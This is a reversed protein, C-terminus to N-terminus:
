KWGKADTPENLLKETTEDLKLLSISMGPMELSTMYNGVKNWVINVGLEKLYDFADKNAIYLEMVPTGGLGNILLATKGSTYDINDKMILDIMEKVLKKSHLLKEKKIGPEGHIGLGMEMEDQKLNFSPKGSAPVICHGLSMGITRTNAIVKEALTKVTKLDKGLESAAGAIKHVFITGAIGRRGTTYTSDEVAVDDNVIVMEVQQGDTEALTKAVEFNMVDGSYNKVILLIGKSSKTLNIAGQVMDPTPSTFVEGCVAADLMGKGIFGAHAPEHGSGGGSILNVKNNNISKKFLTQSKKDFSLNKNENAIGEMMEFIIDDIKNLIKKM